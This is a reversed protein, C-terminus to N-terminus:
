KVQMKEKKDTVELLVVLEEFSKPAKKEKPEAYDANKDWRKAEILSNNGFFNVKYVEGKKSTYVTVQLNKDKGFFLIYEGKNEQQISSYYKVIEDKLNSDVEILVRQNM